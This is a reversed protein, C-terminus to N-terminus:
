YIKSLMELREQRLFDTVDLLLPSEQSEINEKKKKKKKGKEEVKNRVPFFVYIMECKLYIKVGM